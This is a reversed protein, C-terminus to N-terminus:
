ARHLFNFPGPVLRDVLLAAPGASFFDSRGPIEPSRKIHVDNLTVVRWFSVADFVVFM